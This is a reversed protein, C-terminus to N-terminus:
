VPAGTDDTGSSVGGHIHTLLSIAGAVVDETAQVEGTVNLNGTITVAGTIGLGSPAVLNIQGSPTIELYTTGDNSRLQANTSSIGSLVNPQSKPGPIAFGDSLDHMRTEMPVSVKGSQWWADICRSAIVILVEDEVSMPFTLSFGGASPFVIPVDVLVPLTVYQENNTQDTYVGQIAPQVQCTMADLDVSVIMGPMATWIQAQRGDLAYRQAAEPDNLLENRDLM